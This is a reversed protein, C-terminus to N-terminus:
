RQVETRSVPEQVFHGSSTERWTTFHNGFSCEGPWLGTFYQRVAFGAMIGVFIAAGVAVVVRRSTMAKDARTMSVVALATAIITAIAWLGWHFIAGPNM